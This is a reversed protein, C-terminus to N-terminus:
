LRDPEREFTNPGRLFGRLERAPRVPILEIRDDYAVMQVQQGPRIDLRKRVSRPIVVQYKPSVTVKEVSEEEIVREDYSLV